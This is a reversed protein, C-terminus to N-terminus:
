LCAKRLSFNISLSYIQKLVKPLLVDDGCHLGYLVNGEDRVFPSEAVLLGLWLRVVVGLGDGDGLILLFITGCIAWLGPAM